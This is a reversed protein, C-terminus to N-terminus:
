FLESILSPFDIRSKRGFYIGQSLFIGEAELNYYEIASDCMDTPMHKSCLWFRISRINSNVLSKIEMETLNFQGFLNGNVKWQKGKDILTIITNDDLHIFVKGRYNDFVEAYRLIFFGVKGNKVVSVSFSGGTCSSGTENFCLDQYCTADYTKASSVFTCQSFMYVPSVLIAVLITLIKFNV